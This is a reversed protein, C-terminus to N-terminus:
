ALKSGTGSLARAQAMRVARNSERQARAAALKSNPSYINQTLKTPGTSPIASQKGAAANPASGAPPLFTPQITPSATFNLIRQMEAAKEAAISIARDGQANLRDNYGTMAKDAAGSLDGGLQREVPRPIPIPIKGTSKGLDGNDPTSPGPSESQIQRSNEVIAAEEDILTQLQSKLNNIQPGLSSGGGGDGMERKLGQLRLIENEIGLRQRSTERLREPEEELTRQRNYEPNVFRVARDALPSIQRDYTEGIKAATAELAASRRKEKEYPTNAAFDAAGDLGGASNNMIEALFDNFMTRNDLLPKLAQYAQQDSFLENIGFEDGGTLRMVQDMVAMPYSKGDREAKEKVAPLSVGKKKFNDVTERSSLKSLWNRLNNAAEDESGATRKAVQAMAILEGWGALGTRGAGSMYAGLAPFNKAMAGVEFNGLNAGKTMMDLALPVESDQINLNQKAAIMADAITEGDIRYAMAAKMTPDLIAEQSDLGIGSAAYKQRASNVGGQSSGYRIALKENSKSIKNVAEPTTMELTIAVDTASRNLERFKASMQELGRVINDVSAFAVLGAFATGATRGLVGLTNELASAPRNLKELKGADTQGITRLKRAVGDLDKQAAKSATGLAKIEREAADTKVTNLKRAQRELDGIAKEGKGAERRVGALDKGLKDSGGVRGLKKAAEEIGHLDKAAVKAERSLDNDLRLRLSVDMSM